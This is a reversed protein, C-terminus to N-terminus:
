FREVWPRVDIEFSWTSRPQQHLQWYTEAVADPEILSDSGREAQLHEYRDSRIQGDIVIHAVHVGRPGLERAM